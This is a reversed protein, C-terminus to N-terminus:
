VRGILQGAPLYDGVRTHDKALGEGGGDGQGDAQRGRLDAGELGSESLRGGALGADGLQGTRLGGRTFESHPLKSIHHPCATSAWLSRWRAGGPTIHPYGIRPM